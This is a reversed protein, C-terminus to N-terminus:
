NTRKAEKYVQMKKLLSVIEAESKKGQKVLEIAQGTLTIMATVQAEPSMEVLETKAFPGPTQSWHDTGCNCTGGEDIYGGCGSCRNGSKGPYIAQEFEIFIPQGGTFKALEDFIPQTQHKCRNGRQLLSIACGSLSGLNEAQNTNAVM